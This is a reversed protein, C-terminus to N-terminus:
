GTRHLPREHVVAELAGDPLVQPSVLRARNVYIQWYDFERNSLVQYKKTVWRRATHDPTWEMGLSDRACYAEWSPGFDM